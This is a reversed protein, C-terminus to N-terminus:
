KADEANVTGRKRMRQMALEAPKKAKHSKAAKQSQSKADEAKGTPKHGQSGADEADCTGRQHGGNFYVGLQMMVKEIIMRYSSKQNKPQRKVPILKGTISDESTGHPRAAFSSIVGGSSKLVKKKPGLQIMVKEIMTPPPSGSNKQSTAGIQIMVKEIMMRGSSKQTKARLQEIMM